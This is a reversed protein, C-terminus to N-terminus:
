SVPEHEGMLSGWGKVSDLSSLIEEQKAWMTAQSGEDLHDYGLLHLLGHVVLLQLEDKVSHGMASAQIHARLYSILVDGLYLFGTDPDIEDAPFALVDTPADIGRYSRNLEHMQADDTLIVTADVESDAGSRLLVGCAVRELFIIDASILKPLSLNEESDLFMNLSEAVQVYIM